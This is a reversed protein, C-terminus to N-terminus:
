NATEKGNEWLENCSLDLDENWSIGYGGVDVEVNSFMANNNELIKFEQRKKFLLKVDYIKNKGNEFTVLLNYDELAKVNKVKYFM